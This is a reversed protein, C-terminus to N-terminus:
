PDRNPEERPPIVSPRSFGHLVRGVVAIVGLSVCAILLLFVILDVREHTARYEMLKNMHWLERPTPGYPPSKPRSANAKMMQEAHYNAAQNLRGLWAILSFLLGASAIAIMLGRISFRLPRLPRWRVEVEMPLLPINIRM